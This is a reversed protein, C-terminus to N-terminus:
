DVWSYSGAQSLLIWVKDLYQVRKCYQVEDSAIEGIEEDKANLIKQLIIV